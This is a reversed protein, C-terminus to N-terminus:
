LGPDKSVSGLLKATTTVTMLSCNFWTTLLKLTGTIPNTWKIQKVRMVLSSLKAYQYKFILKVM